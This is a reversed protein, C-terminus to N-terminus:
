LIRVKALTAIISYNKKVKKKMKSENQFIVGLELTEIAACTDKFNCLNQCRGM